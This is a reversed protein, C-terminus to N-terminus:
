RVEMGLGEAVLAAKKKGILEELEASQAERIRKVSKYKKLLAEKTKEGIGKITDLESVIQGKSRMHRHFTIGFRHAEDRLHQIVKLTESTKDLVLPFPDGPYFIEELRKALGVITIKGLLNLERLVETAANLQGKGGDIIILQPLPAKEELLRTYRRTVIERMSAFDDPGVVTKIHFHRYDKKSPKAKKFVVCAAVPNTGQINSNDFCEIQMPLVPLHLDKQITTLLRTARQEPNFKESRKLKDVKYQKANQLSLELLKRKDGRQPVTFSIGEPFVGEPIFPVIIENAHSRFRERMEVIGLGLVYEKQEDDLKKQYEITYVQVIAGSGVHMYNIFFSTENEDLSFVDVNHLMPVVTSKLRFSEVLDYQRKVEQAEEFRMEEALVKMRELLLESVKSSNGKLIEKIDAINRNYEEALQMGVCPAKCRKIHYQLCVKYKGSGIAEPTLAHKCNRIPYLEKILHLLTRIFHVSSYPGYYLSGDRIINRTQFIRPFPENKIVISPYTKDDKLLVNYRPRYQKILNNELLLADAESDVVIYRLDYIQKVLVRTKRNEHEKQFYSSIRKRLNKAKGVYIVTGKADYYQYCGPKEPITSLLSTIYNLRDNMTWAEQKVHFM